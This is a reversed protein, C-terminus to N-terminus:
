DGKEPWNDEGTLAKALERAREMCNWVSIGGTWNGGLLPSESPLLADQWRGLDAGYQPIAEEWRIIKSWQSAKKAGLFRQHDRHVGALLEADSLRARDPQTAGGVFSTLLTKGEPSRQPFAGSVFLVGLAFSEEKLNHLAGFGDLRHPIEGREYLTHVVTLPPYSPKEPSPAELGKIPPLEGLPLTM